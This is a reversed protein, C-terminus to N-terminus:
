CDVWCPGNNLSCGVQQKDSCETGKVNCCTKKGGFMDLVITPCVIMKGENQTTRDSTKHTSMEQGLVNTPCGIMGPKSGNGQNEREQPRWRLNKFSTPITGCIMKSPMSRSSSGGFSPFISAESCRFQFLCAFVKLVGYRSWRLLSLYSWFMEHCECDHVLCCKEEPVM